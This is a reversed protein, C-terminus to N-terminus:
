GICPIDRDNYSIKKSFKEDKITNRMNYVYNELIYSADSRKQVHEDGEKYKEAKKLKPYGKLGYSKAIKKLEGHKLESLDCSKYESLCPSDRVFSGNEASTLM